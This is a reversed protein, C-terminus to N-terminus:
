PTIRSLVARYDDLRAGHRPDDALQESVMRFALARALEGPEVLDLLGTSGDHWLLHDAVIVGAAFGPSARSPSIDLVVPQGDAAIFTNGTMDAHVIANRAPPDGATDLLTTLLETAEPSLDVAEGYAADIGRAWRDARPPLPASTASLVTTVPDALGIVRAPHDILAVLDPEFRSATWGEVVFSGDPARLPEPIRFGVTAATSAAQAWAAVTPDDAPKCVANGVRITTGSGGPLREPNGALGFGRLVAAPIM